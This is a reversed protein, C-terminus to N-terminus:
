LGGTCQGTGTAAVPQNAWPTYTSPDPEGFYNSPAGGWWNCTIDTGEQTVLDFARFALIDNWNLNTPGANAFTGVGVRLSSLTNQTGELVSGTRTIFGYNAGTVTNGVATMTSHGENVFAGITFPYADPNDPEADANGGVGILVNGTLRFSGGRDTEEADGGQNDSLVIGIRTREGHRVTIRNNRMDGNARVNATICQGFGCGDIDNDEIIAQTNHVFIVHHFWSDYEGAIVNSMHNGAIRASAQGFAAVCVATGCQSLQNDLVQLVGGANICRVGCDTFVNNRITADSHNVQVAFNSAVDDASRQGSFRNDHIDIRSAPRGASGRTSGIAARGGTFTSHRVILHSNGPIGGGSYFVGSAHGGLRPYRVPSPRRM